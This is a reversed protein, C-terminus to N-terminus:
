LALVFLVKSAARLEPGGSSVGLLVVIWNVGGNLANKDSLLHNTLCRLVWMIRGSLLVGSNEFALDLELDKKYTM